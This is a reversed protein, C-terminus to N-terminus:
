GSISGFRQGWIRTAISDPACMSCRPDRLFAIARNSRALPSFFQFTARQLSQSLPGSHVLHDKLLEAALMVGAMVSVFGVAFAPEGENQRLLPLLREGAVGCRGSAIWERADAMALGASQVLAELEDDRAARLRSRLEEDPEIREPENFCRLCAGIGPPGCRLVEARLDSTSGSFIRAPYQNQIAVRSTNRDVASLVRSSNLTFSEIGGDHPYWRISADSLTEAAFSAKQRGVARTGFICYRNLNTAEVGLPDNDILAMSGALGSCAWLSHMGASGVAGAGVLAADLTIEVEQPGGGLPKESAQHEWCSYFASAPASYTGAQMRAAKFVEGAAICAAIYPGLPLPSSSQLLAFSPANVSVGGCWGSGFAFLDPKGSDTPVPGLCITRELTVGEEVPVVGIETGGAVLATALDLDRAALPVVRDCLQIGRPCRVGVRHLVGEFRALLNILMWATHQVSAIGAVTDPIEVTM